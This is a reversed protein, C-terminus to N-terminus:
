MCCFIFATKYRVPIKASVTTDLIIQVITYYSILVTLVKTNYMNRSCLVFVIIGYLIVSYYLIASYRFQPFYYMHEPPDLFLSKATKLSGMGWCAPSAAFFVCRKPLRPLYSYPLASVM